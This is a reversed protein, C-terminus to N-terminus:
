ADVLEVVGKGIQEVLQRVLVQESIRRGIRRAVLLPPPDLHVHVAMVVDARPLSIAHRRHLLCAKPAYTAFRPKAAHARRRRTPNPARSRRTPLRLAFAM